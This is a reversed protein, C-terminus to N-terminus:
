IISEQIMNDNSLETLQYRTTGLYELAYCTRKYDVVSEYIMMADRRVFSIASSTWNHMYAPICTKVLLLQDSTEADGEGSGIMRTTM